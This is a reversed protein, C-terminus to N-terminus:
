GDRREAPWRRSAPIATVKGYEWLMDVDTPTHVNFVNFGDVVIHVRQNQFKFVKDVHLDLLSQTPLHVPNAVGVIQGTGGPDIVGDAPGGWQLLEANLAKNLADLYVHPAM